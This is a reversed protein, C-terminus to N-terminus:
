RKDLCTPSQMKSFQPEKKGILHESVQHYALRGQEGSNLCRPPLRRESSGDQGRQGTREARPMLSVEVTGTLSKHREGTASESVMQDQEREAQRYCRVLNGSRCGPFERKEQTGLNEASPRRVWRKREKTMRVPEQESKNFTFSYM